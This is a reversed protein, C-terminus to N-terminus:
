GNTNWWYSKLFTANAPRLLRRCFPYWINTFSQIKSSGNLLFPGNNTM